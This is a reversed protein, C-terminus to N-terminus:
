KPKLLYSIELPSPIQQIIDSIVEESIMPADLKLNDLSDLFAQEDSKKGTSCGLVVLVLIFSSIKRM